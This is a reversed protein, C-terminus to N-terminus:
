GDGKDEDTPPAPLMRVGPLMRIRVEEVLRESNDRLEVPSLRGSNIEEATQRLGHAMSNWAAALKPYDGPGPDYKWEGDILRLETQRAPLKGDVIFFVTATESTIVYDLLEVYKSFIDLHYARYSQDVMEALGLGVRERIINCLQHNADLFDDMAVLTTLVDAVREPVIMPKMENYARSGHAAILKNVTDLPTAGQSDAPQSSPSRSCSNCIILFGFLLAAFWTMRRRGSSLPLLETPM